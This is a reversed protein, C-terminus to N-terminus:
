MIVHLAKYRTFKSASDQKTWNKLSWHLIKIVWKILLTNLRM